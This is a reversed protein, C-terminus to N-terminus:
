HAAIVTTRKVTSSAMRLWSWRGLGTTDQGQQMVRRGHSGNAMTLTGGPLCATDRQKECSNTTAQMHHCRWTEDLTEKIKERTLYNTFDANPETIGIADVQFNCFADTVGQLNCKETTLTNVNGVIFRVHNEHLEAIPTGWPENAKPAQTKRIRTQRQHKDNFNREKRVQKLQMTRGAERDKGQGYLQGM